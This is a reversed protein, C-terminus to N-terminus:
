SEIAASDFVDIQVTNTVDACAWLEGAYGVFSQTQYIILKGTNAGSAVGSDLVPYMTDTKVQPQTAAAPPMVIAIGGQGFAPTSQLERRSRAIFAAHAKQTDAHSVTIIVTRPYKAAAAIRVAGGGAGQPTDLTRIM